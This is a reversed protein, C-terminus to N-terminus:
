KALESVIAVSTVNALLGKDSTNCSEQCLVVKERNPLRWPSPLMSMAQRIASATQLSASLLLGKLQYRNRSWAQHNEQNDRIHYRKEPDGPNLQLCLLTCAALRWKVDM